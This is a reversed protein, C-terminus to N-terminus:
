RCKKNFFRRMIKDLGSLNPDGAPFMMFLVMEVSQRNNRWAYCGERRESPSLERWYDSLFGKLRSDVYDNTTKLTTVAAPTNRTYVRADEQAVASPVSGTVMLLATALAGMALRTNM